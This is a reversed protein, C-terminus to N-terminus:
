LGQHWVQHRLKWEGDEYKWLHPSRFTDALHMFYEYDMIPQEFMKFAEPFEKEPISLYRFIEDAFREPFEGDFRKSLAVGEERTIDGSRIEQAADYTARM